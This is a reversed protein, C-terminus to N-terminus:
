TVAYRIRIDGKLGRGSRFNKMIPSQINVTWIGDDEHRETHASRTALKRVKNTQEEQLSMTFTSEETSGAQTVKITRYAQNPRLNRSHPDGHGKVQGSPGEDWKRM